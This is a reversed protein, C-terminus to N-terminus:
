VYARTPVRLIRLRARSMLALTFGLLIALPMAIFCFEITRALGALFYNRLPGGNQDTATTPVSVLVKLFHGVRQFLYGLNTLDGPARRRAKGLAGLGLSGCAGFVLVLVLVIGVFRVPPPIRMLRKGGACGGRLIGARRSYVDRTLSVLVAPVAESETG